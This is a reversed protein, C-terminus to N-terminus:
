RLWTFHSQQVCSCPLCEYCLCRTQALEPLAQQFPQSTLDNLICMHYLPITASLSQMQMLPVAEPVASHQDAQQAFKDFITCLQTM